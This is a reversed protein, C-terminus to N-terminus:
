SSSNSASRQSRLRWGSGQAKGTGGQAHVTAGAAVLDHRRSDACWGQPQTTSSALPAGSLWRSPTSQCWALWVSRSNMVSLLLSARKGGREVADQGEAGRQKVPLALAAGARTTEMTAIRQRRFRAFGAAHSGAM